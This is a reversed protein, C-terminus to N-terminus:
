ICRCNSVPTHASAGSHGLPALFTPNIGSMNYSVRHLAATDTLKINVLHCEVWYTDPSHPTTTFLKALRNCLAIPKANYFTADKATCSKALAEMNQGDRRANLIQTSNSNKPMALKHELAM